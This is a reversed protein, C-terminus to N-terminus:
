RPAARTVEAQLTALVPKPVDSLRIGLRQEHKAV